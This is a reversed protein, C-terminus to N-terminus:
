ELGFAKLVIFLIFAILYLLGGAHDDYFAGIKTEYFSKRKKM